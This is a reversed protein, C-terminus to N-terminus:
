ILMVGREFEYDAADSDTVDAGTQPEVDGIAV